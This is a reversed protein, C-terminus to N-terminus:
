FMSHNYIYKIIIFFQAEERGSDYENLIYLIYIYYYNIKKNNWM